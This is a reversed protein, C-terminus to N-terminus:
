ALKGYQDEVIFRKEDYDNTGAQASRDEQQTHVSDGYYLAEWTIMKEVYPAANNIQAIIRDTSATCRTRELDVHECCDFIEINAWLRIKNYRCIESWARYADDQHKLSICNCGISDQPALIDPSAKSFMANWADVMANIKRKPHYFTAPSMMIKVSPDITKIKNFLKGYLTGLFTERKQDRVGTFASESAFYFGDFFKRYRLLEQFCNFQRRIESDIVSSNLKDMWCTVSGYGGLFVTLSLESAAELMPEIVNWCRYSKFEESPYYCEELENWVSAQFIITDMGYNKLRILETKWEDVGFHLTNVGIYNPPHAYVFSGTIKGALKRCPQKALFEQNWALLKKRSKYHGSLAKATPLFLKYDGVNKIFYM